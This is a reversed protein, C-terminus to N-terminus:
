NRTHGLWQHILEEVRDKAEVLEPPNDRHRPGLENSMTARPIVIAIADDSLDTRRGIVSWPDHQGYVFVANTVEPELGGYLINFRESNRHLREETFSEGFVAQCGAHYLDVPFRDGFPQDPSGSTHFWGIQSCLQYTWQRYGVAVAPADWEVQREQDIIYDYDIELCQGGDIDIFNNLLYAISNISSQGDIIHDCTAQIFEEFEFQPLVSYLEAMLSFFHPADEEELPDCIFFAQTLEEFDGNDWLEHMRDFGLELANYCEDGGVSRYAAGTAEKFGDFDVVSPLPPSSAWVGLIIAIYDTNVYHIRRVGKWDAVLFSRTIIGHFSDM